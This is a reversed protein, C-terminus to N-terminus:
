MLFDRLRRNHFTVWKARNFIWMVAFQLRFVRAFAKLNFDPLEDGVERSSLGSSPLM